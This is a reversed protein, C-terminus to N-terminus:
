LSVPTLKLTDALESQDPNTIVATSAREPKLYTAAVRQLDSLQVERVRNRFTERVDRTRGYLEAHFTEKAEGAPSSPKDISSIVGLIAEEVQQWEHSANQLWDLSDDFDNLTGEIRPDRYSFFRFAAINSDQSAGGGYAGGQERITRHLFGNRLFGGLVTLPAADPHTVPVTPYAKACFNVQTSTKWLEAVQHHVEPQSFHQFDPAQASVFYQQLNQQYETLREEEGVLLYERPASLILQHLAALNESLKKLEGADALANDLLKLQKIGALGRWHHALRAGPSIGSAAASMALNHGSATVSSERHARTQAILERIRALEDFRVQELTCQMLESLDDQHRALGKASLTLHGSLAQVDEPTGRVSAYAHISGCVRSQWLQTALYDRDGM